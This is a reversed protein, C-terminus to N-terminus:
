LEFIVGEARHAGGRARLKMTVSTAGSIIETASLDFDDKSVDRVGCLVQGGSYRCVTSIYVHARDSGETLTLYGTVLYSKQWDLDFGITTEFTGTAWMVYVAKWYM